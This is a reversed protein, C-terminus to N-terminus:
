KLGLAEKVFGDRAVNEGQRRLKEAFVKRIGVRITDDGMWKVAVTESEVPGFYVRPAYDLTQHERLSNIVKTVEAKTVTFWEREEGRRRDEFFDGFLWSM